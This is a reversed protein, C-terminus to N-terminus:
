AIGPPVLFKASRRISGSPGAKYSFPTPSFQYSCNCFLVRKFVIHTHCLFFLILKAEPAKDCSPKFGKGNGLM